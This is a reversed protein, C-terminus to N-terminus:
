QLIMELTNKSYFWQGTCKQLLIKEFTNKSYFIMQIM